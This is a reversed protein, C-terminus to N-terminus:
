AAGYANIVSPIYEAAPRFKTRIEASVLSGAKELGILYDM